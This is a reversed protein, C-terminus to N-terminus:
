APRYITRQRTDARLLAAAPDDLARELRQPERERRAAAAHLEHAVSREACSFELRARVIDRSPAAGRALKTVAPETVSRAM